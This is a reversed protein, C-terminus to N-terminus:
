RNLLFMTGEATVFTLKSIRERGMFMMLM